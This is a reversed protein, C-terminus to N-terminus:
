VLARNTQIDYISIRRWAGDSEPGSYRITFPKIGPGENVEAHYFLSANQQIDNFKISVRWWADDSEPGSYRSPKIDPSIMLKQMAFFARM